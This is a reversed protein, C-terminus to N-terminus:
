ALTGSQRNLKRVWSIFVIVLVLSMGFWQLAYAMHKAPPMIVPQWNRKFGQEQDTDLWLIKNSVKCNTNSCLTDSIFSNIKNSEYYTIKQVESKKLHIEGLQMGVQPPTNLRGKIMGEHSSLKLTSDSFNKDSIWGRNVMIVTNLASIEFPTFIHYGTQQENIQNELILQPSNLFHGYIEITAYRPLEILQSDVHIRTINDDSILELLHQKEDARRLQWFGLNIMLILFFLTILAPIAPIKKM